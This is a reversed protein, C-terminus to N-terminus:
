EDGGLSLFAAFRFFANDVRKNLALLDMWLTRLHMQILIITPGGPRAAARDSWTASPGKNARMDGSM